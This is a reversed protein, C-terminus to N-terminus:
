EIFKIGNEELWQYISGAKAEKIFKPMEQKLYAMLEDAKKKVDKPSQSIKKVEKIIVGSRVKDLDRIRNIIDGVVSPFDQLGDLDSNDTMYDGLLHIDYAIGAFFRRIDREEFRFLEKTEKDILRNRRAQEVKMDEIMMQKITNAKTGFVDDVRKGLYSNWPMGTYGWHFLARHKCTFGRYKAKLKEYFGGPKDIMESSIFKMWRDIREQRQFGFVEYMDDMHENVSGHANVQNSLVILFGLVIM